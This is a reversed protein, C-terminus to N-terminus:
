AAASTATLCTVLGSSILENHSITFSKGPILRTGDASVRQFRVGDDGVAIIQWTGKRKAMPGETDTITARMGVAPTPLPAPQQAPVLGLDKALESGPQVEQVAPAPAPAEAKLPPIRPCAADVAAAIALAATNLRSM